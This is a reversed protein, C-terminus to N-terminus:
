SSLWRTVWWCQFSGSVVPQAGAALSIETPSSVSTSSTAPSKPSTSRLCTVRWSQFSGPGHECDAGPRRPNDARWWISNRRPRCRPGPFLKKKVLARRQWMERKCPVERKSLLCVCYDDQVENYETSSSRFITSTSCPNKCVM